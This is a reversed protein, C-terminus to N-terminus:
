CLPFRPRRMANPSLPGYFSWAHLKLSAQLPATDQTSLCTSGLLLPQPCWLMLERFWPQAEWFPAILLVRGRYERLLQIVRLLVKSAPPPFLYIHSWKNWEETFADPGGAPTRRDYTLFLPLQATDYSAFLDM